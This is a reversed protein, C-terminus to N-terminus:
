WQGVRSVDPYRAVGLMTKCTGLGFLPMATEGLGLLCSPAAITAPLALAMASVSPLFGFGLGVM